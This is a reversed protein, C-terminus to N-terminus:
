NFYWRANTSISPVVNIHNLVNFSPLTIPISHKVGKQWSSLPTRFLLSDTTSIKNEFQTSYSIKFDEYWGKKGVSNKRKFPQISKMNVTMSPLKVSVSQNKTNQDASV